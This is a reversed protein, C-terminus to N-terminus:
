ENNYRKATSLKFYNDLSGMEVLVRYHNIIWDTLGEEYSVRANYYENEANLLDFLGRTGAEHEKVYNRWVERAQLQYNNLYNLRIKSEKLTKWLTHVDSYIERYAALYSFQAKELEAVDSKYSEYDKGGSFVNYQVSLLISESNNSGPVGNLEDDRSFDGKLKVTPLFSARSERRTADAINIQQMAQRLNPNNIKVINFFSKFSRPLTPLPPEGFTPAPNENTLERYRNIATDLDIYANVLRSQALALRSRALHIEAKGAAGATVRRESYYLTKRYSMISNKYIKIIRRSRLINIYAEATALAIANRTAELRNKSVYLEAKNKSIQALRLFGSFITEDLAIGFEKRTLSEWGGTAARTSSNNTKEPGVAGDIDIEPLYALYSRTLQHRQSIVQLKEALIKPQTDLVHSVIVSLDDHTASHSTGAHVGIVNFYLFIVLLITQILARM